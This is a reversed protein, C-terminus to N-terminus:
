NIMAINRQGAPSTRSPTLRDRLKYYINGLLRCSFKMECDHPVIYKYSTPQFWKAPHAM